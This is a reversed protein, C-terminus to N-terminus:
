VKQLVPTPPTGECKRPALLAAAEDQGFELALQAPTRASPAVQMAAFSEPSIAAAGDPTM